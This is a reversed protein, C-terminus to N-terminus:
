RKIGQRERSFAALQRKVYRRYAARETEARTGYHADDADGGFSSNASYDVIQDLKKLVGYRKSQGLARKVAKIDPLLDAVGPAEEELMERIPGMQEQIRRERDARCKAEEGARAEVKALDELVEDMGHLTDDFVKSRASDAKTFLLLTNLHGKTYIAERMFKNLYKLSSKSKKKDRKANILALFSDHHKVLQILLEALDANEKELRLVLRETIAVSTQAHGHFQHRGAPSVKHTYAKGLDHLIAALGLVGRLEQDKDSTLRHVDELVWKIHELVTEGNHYLDDSHELERLSKTLGKLDLELEQEVGELDEISHVLGDIYEEVREPDLEELLLQQIDQSRM